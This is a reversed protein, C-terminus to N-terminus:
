LRVFIFSRKLAQGEQAGIRSPLMAFFLDSKPSGRQETLWSPHLSKFKTEETKEQELDGGLDEM